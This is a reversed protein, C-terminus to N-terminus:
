KLERVCLNWNRTGLSRFRISVQFSIQLEFEPL